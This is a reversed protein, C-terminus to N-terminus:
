HFRVNKKTMQLTIIKDIIILFYQLYYKIYVM